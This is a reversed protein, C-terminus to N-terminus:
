VATRPVVTLDTSAMVAATNTVSSLASSLGGDRALKVNFPSSTPTADGGTTEASLGASEKVCAKASAANAITWRRTSVFITSVWITNLDKCPQIWAENSCYDYGDGAYHVMATDVNVKCLYM